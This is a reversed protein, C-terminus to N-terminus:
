AALPIHFIDSVPHSLRAAEPAAFASRVMLAPAAARAPLHIVAQQAHACMTCFSCFPPCSRQGNDDPCPENCVPAFMMGAAVQTVVIIILLAIIRRRLMRFSKYWV